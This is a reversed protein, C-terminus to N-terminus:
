LCIGFQGDSKVTVDPPLVAPLPSSPTSAADHPFSVPDLFPLSSAHAYGTETGSGTQSSSDDHRTRRPCDSCVCSAPLHTAQADTELSGPGRASSRGTWM